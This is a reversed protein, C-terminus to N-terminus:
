RAPRARWAALLLGLLLGPALFDFIDGWRSYFTGGPGLPAEAVLLVEPGEASSKEAVIRGYADSVTLLGQQATRVLGFGSEVGRLVAMRAHLSADRVFDWAPAAVLRRERRGLERLFASFDLDKCIVLGWTVENAVFEGVQDGHRYKAEWVPVLHAKEYETLRSGDAGFVVALNRRPLVGVENLGAVVVVGHDRAAKALILELENRNAPTVGVFKEPLVVVKAGEQALKGIRVAYAELSARAVATDETDFADIAADASVLGVPVTASPPATALRWGGFGLAALPVLLMLGAHRLERTSSGRTWAWALACSPVLLAFSIAAPGLLSAIQLILPFDAQSYALSVANGHPATLAFFVEAFSWAAPFALLGWAGLSKCAFSGALVALAFALAPTAGAVLVAPLPMLEFLYPFLTAQGFLYAVFASLFTVRPRSQLAILLIPLAAIWALPWIPGFGTSANWALASLLTAVPVFASRKASPM